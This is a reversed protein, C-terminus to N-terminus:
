RKEVEYAVFHTYKEGKEYFNEGRNVSNPETQTELCLAGHYVQKIGGRFDPGGGLFNGVYFQIAPRDTYVNMKLDKGVVTAALAARNGLISKYESPSLNFNHDFGIFDESLADGIRSRERLDFVTGEVSPRRGNPILDAGVETYTDANILVEHDEITGGFGDLNFYAHNTLSIPTKGEPIALYEIAFGRETLTYVVRVWLESPFGEEGDASRYELAIRTDSHENLKWVRRDFGCGGHLCNDGDNKPLHYIHGDMNFSAGGVRNAVRGIIGGQHSDDALYSEMDDFGGVIERGFASFSTLIAGFSIVSLSYNENSVTYKEIKEGTPLYGFCEYKM